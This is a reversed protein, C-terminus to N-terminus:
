LVKALLWSAGKGELNLKPSHGVALKNLITYCFSHDYTISLDLQLSLSFTTSYKRFDFTELKVLTMYKYEPLYRATM